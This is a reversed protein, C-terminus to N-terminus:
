TAEPRASPADGTGDGSRTTDEDKGETVRGIHDLVMMTLHAFGDSRRHPIGEFKVPKQGTPVFVGGYECFGFGLDKRNHINLVGITRRNAEVGQPVTEFTVRLTM